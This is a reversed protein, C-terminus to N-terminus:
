TNLQKLFLSLSPSSQQRRRAEQRNSAELMSKLTSSHGSYYSTSERHLSPASARMAYYM